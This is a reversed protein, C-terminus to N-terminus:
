RKGLIDFQHTYKVTLSQNNLADFMDSDKVVNVVVFLGTNANRLWGFRINSSTINSINNHQILGQVFM